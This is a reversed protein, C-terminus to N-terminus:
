AALQAKRAAALETHRPTWRTGAAQWLQVLEDPTTAANIAAILAADADPTIPDPVVALTPRQYPQTLNKRARWARVQTAVQVAEWGAAIDIWLLECRGTQANLAIILGREQDVDGIQQRRGAQVDYILSHAYVSLQMAMKLTGYEVSGTKVDGIILKDHGPIQLIRDPTGGIKLSDLVTFREIHIATFDRTAEEYAKLHPQYQAPVVGVDLGRDLRETLAHIATGITAAASSAAAETAAETVEDMARKWKGKEADDQPQLGLSAARLQLDPRQALGAAVMRKQWQALNYTDELVGVYTTARTYAIAKGGNPPIVLPRGWRDRSPETQPVDEFTTTM